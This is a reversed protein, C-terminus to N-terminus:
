AEKKATKEYPHLFMIWRKKSWNDKVKHSSHTGWGDGDEDVATMGAFVFGAAKYITGKHGQTKIDSYSIIQRVHPAISPVIIRCAIRLVRSECNRACRNDSLWMRRIEWIHPAGGKKSGGLRASFAIAGVLETLKSDFVGLEISPNSFDRHLYHKELWINRATARAIKELRLEKPQLPLIPSAGDEGRSSGKELGESACVESAEGADEFLNRQPSDGNFGYDFKDQKSM